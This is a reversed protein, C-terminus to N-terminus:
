SESTDEDDSLDLADLDVVNVNHDSSLMEDLDIYDENESHRGKISGYVSTDVNESKRSSKRPVIAASVNEKASKRSSKRKESTKVVEEDDHDEGDADVVQVSKRSSKRGSDESKM